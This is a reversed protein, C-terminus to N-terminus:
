LFNWPFFFIFNLYILIWSFSAPFSIRGSVSTEAILTPRDSSDCRLVNKYAYSLLQECTDWDDVSPSHHSMNRHIQFTSLGDKLPKRFTMNPRASVINQTGISYIHKLPKKAARTIIIIYFFPPLFSFIPLRVLDMKKM